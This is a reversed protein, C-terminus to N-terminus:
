RARRKPGLVVGTHNSLWSKVSDREKKKESELRTGGVERRGEVRTKGTGRGSDHDLGVRSELFFSNSSSSKALPNTHLVKTSSPSNFSSTIKDRKRALASKDLFDHTLGPMPYDFDDLEDDLDEKEIYLSQSERRESSSGRQSSPIQRGIRDHPSLSTSPVESVRIRKSSPSSSSSSSSTEGNPISPHIGHSRSEQLPVLPLAFSERNSHNKTSPSPPIRQRDRAHGDGSSSAGSGKGEKLMRQLTMVQAKLDALATDDEEKKKLQAKYKEVKSQLQRMQDALTNNKSGIADREREAERVKREAEEVKVEMESVKANATEQISSIKHASEIKTRRILSEVEKSKTELRLAWERMAEETKEQAKSKLEIEEALNKLKKKERELDEEKAKIRSRTAKQDRKEEHLLRQRRTFDRQDRELDRRMEEVELSKERFVEAAKELASLSLDLGERVDEKDQDTLLDSRILRRIKTGARLLTDVRVSHTAMVFHSLYQNFDLLHNLLRDRDQKSLIGEFDEGVGFGERQREQLYRDLDGSDSPFLKVINKEDAENKCFPCSNLSKGGRKQNLWKSVCKYHFLHGCTLASPRNEECDDEGFDELCIVCGM